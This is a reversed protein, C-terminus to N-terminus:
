RFGAILLGKKISVGNLGSVAPFHSNGPLELVSLNLAMQRPTRAATSPFTIGSVTGDPLPDM